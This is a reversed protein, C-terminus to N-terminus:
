DTSGTLEELRDLYDPRPVQYLERFEIEGADFAAALDVAGQVARVRDDYTDPDRSIEPELYLTVYWDGGVRQGGPRRGRRGHTLYITPLCPPPFEGGDFVDPRFALVVKEREDSWVVWQEGLSDLSM